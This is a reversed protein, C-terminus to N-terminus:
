EIHAVCQCRYIKRIFFMLFYKSSLFSLRVNAYGRLHLSLASGKERERRVSYCYTDSPKKHTSILVWILHILSCSFQRSEYVVVQVYYQENAYDYRNRGHKNIQHNVTAVVQKRRVVCGFPAINKRSCRYTESEQGYDYLGYSEYDPFDDFADIM